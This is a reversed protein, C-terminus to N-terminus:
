RRGAKLTLAQHEKGDMQERCQLARGGYRTHAKREGADSFEQPSLNNLHQRRCVKKRIM